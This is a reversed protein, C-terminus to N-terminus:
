KLSGLYFKVQKPNLSQETFGQSKYFSPFIPVYQTEKFDGELEYNFTGISFKSCM